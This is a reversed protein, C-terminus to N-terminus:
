EEENEFDELTMRRKEGKWSSFSSEGQFKERFLKATKELEERLKEFSQNINKLNDLALQMKDHDLPKHKSPKPTPRQNKKTTKTMGLKLHTNYNRQM